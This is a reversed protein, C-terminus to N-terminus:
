QKEKTEIHELPAFLPKFNDGFNAKEMYQEFNLVHGQHLFKDQAVGKTFYESPKEGWEVWVIADKHHEHQYLAIREYNIGIVGKLYNRLAYRLTHKILDNDYEPFFFDEEENEHQISLSEDPCPDTLFSSQRPVSIYTAPITLAFLSRDGVDRLYTLKMTDGVSFIPVPMEISALPLPKLKKTYGAAAQESMSFFLTAEHDGGYECHSVLHINSMQAPYTEVGDEVQVKGLLHLRLTLCVPMLM